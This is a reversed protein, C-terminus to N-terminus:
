FFSVAQDEQSNNKYFEWHYSVKLLQNGLEKSKMKSKLSFWRLQRSWPTKTSIQISDLIQLQNPQVLKPQLSISFLHHIPLQKSYSLGIHLYNALIIKRRRSSKRQNKSKKSWWPTLLFLIRIKTWQSWVIIYIISEWWVWSRCWKKARGKNIRSFSKSRTLCKIMNIKIM